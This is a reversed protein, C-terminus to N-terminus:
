DLPTFNEPPAPRANVRPAVFRRESAPADGFHDIRGKASVLWYGLGSPTATMAAVPSTLEEASLDGYSHADGFAAVRGTNTVVWYGLGSPTSDMAVTAEDEVVLDGFFGADGFAAVHGTRSLLWYGRGTPSPSIAVVSDGVNRLDGFFHADGFPFVRGGTGVVWYGRGSPTGALASGIFPKQTVRGKKAADGFSSVQGNRSLLWYGDGSPTTAIDVVQKNLYGHGKSGYSSGGWSSSVVGNRGATWFGDGTPSVDVDAVFSQAAHWFTRKKLAGEWTFSFHVHDTHPVRADKTGPAFCGADRQVCYTKWGDWSTWIRRNWIIYMIGLRRAMAHSNGFRDKALVWSIVEEAERKDSPDDANVGWDWARGEKHESTGGVDCARTIGLSSTDPYAKLVRREFSLVGAKPDPSCTTQGEYSPMEEIFPGFDPRNPVASAFTQLGLLVLTAVISGAGIRRSRSRWSM